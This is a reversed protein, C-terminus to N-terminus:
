PHFSRKGSNPARRTLHCWGPTDDPHERYLGFEELIADTLWHDLENNPDPIDVAQSDKHASHPAGIPNDQLRFGGNPGSVGEGFKVGEAKARALLPNVHSQLDTFKKYQEGYYQEATLMNKVEMISLLKYLANIEADVDAKMYVEVRALSHKSVRVKYVPIAM